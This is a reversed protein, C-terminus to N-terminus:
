SELVRSNGLLYFDTLVMHSAPVMESKDARSPWKHTSFVDGISKIIAGRTGGGQINDDILLVNIVDNVRSAGGKMVESKAMRLKGWKRYIDDVTFGPKLWDGIWRKLETAIQDTRQVQVGNITTMLEGPQIHRKIDRGKIHKARSFETLAREPDTGSLIDRLVGTIVRLKILNNPTQKKPHLHIANIFTRQIQEDSLDGGLQNIMEGITKKAFMGDVMEVQRGQLASLAKQMVKAIHLNHPSSSSMYTIFAVTKAADPATKIFRSVGQNIIAWYDPEEIVPESEDFDGSEVYKATNKLAHYAHVINSVQGGGTSVFKLGSTEPNSPFAVFTNKAVGRTTSKKYFPDAELNFASDPAKFDYMMLGSSSQFADEKLFELIENAQQEFTKNSGIKM